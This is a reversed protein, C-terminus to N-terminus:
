HKGWAVLFIKFQRGPHSGSQLKSFKRKRIAATEFASKEARIM